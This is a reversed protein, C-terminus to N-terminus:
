EQDITAVEGEGFVGRLVDEVEDSLSHCGFNPLVLEEFVAQGVPQEGELEAEGSFGDEELEEGM